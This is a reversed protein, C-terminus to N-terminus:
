GIAGQFDIVLREAECHAHTLSLGNAAAGDVCRLSGSRGDGSSCYERMLGPTHAYQISMLTREFSHFCNNKRVFPPYMQHQCWNMHCSVILESILLLM